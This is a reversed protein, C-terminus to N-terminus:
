PGEPGDREEALEEGVWDDKVHIEAEKIEEYSLNVKGRWIGYLDSFTKRKKKRPCRSSGNQSM